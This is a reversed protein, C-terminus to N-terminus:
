EKNMNTQPSLPQARCFADVNCLLYLFIVRIFIRDGDEYPIDGM